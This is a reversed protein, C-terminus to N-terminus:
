PFYVSVLPTPGSLLKLDHILKPLLIKLDRLSDGSIGQKRPMLPDPVHRLLNYILAVNTKPYCCCHCVSLVLRTADMM